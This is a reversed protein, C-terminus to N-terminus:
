DCRRGEDQDMRREVAGDLMHLLGAGIRSRRVGKNQHQVIITVFEGKDGKYGM